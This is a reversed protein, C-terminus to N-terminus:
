TRENCVLKVKTAFMKIRFDKSKQEFIKEKM